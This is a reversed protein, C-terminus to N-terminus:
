IDPKELYVDGNIYDFTVKYQKLVNGGILGDVGFFKRHQKGSQKDAISVVIDSLEIQGIDIDLQSTIKGDIKGNMGQGIAVKSSTNLTFLKANKSNSYIMMDLAAGTDLLIKMENAQLVSHENKIKLTTTIYPKTDILELDFHDAELNPAFYIPNRFTIENNLYDIEIIFNSFLQYGLIVEVGENHLIEFPIIDDISVVGLGEGLVDGIRLVNNVSLKGEQRKGRGLGNIKVNRTNTFDLNKRHYKGYLIVSRVGTDVVAKTIQGNNLRIPIVILNNILTFSIKTEKKDDVLSFGASGEGYATISFLFALLAFLMGKKPASVNTLQTNM